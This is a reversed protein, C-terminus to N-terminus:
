AHRVVENFDSIGEFCGNDKLRKLLAHQALSREDLAQEHAIKLEAMREEHAQKQSKFEEEERMIAAEAIVVNSNARIARAEVHDLPLKEIKSAPQTHEARKLALRLADPAVDRGGGAVESMKRQIMELM